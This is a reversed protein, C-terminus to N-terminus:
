TAHTAAPRTFWVILGGVIAFAIWFMTTSFILDSWINGRVLSYGSAFAAWLALCDLQYPWFGRLSRRHTLVLGIFALGIFSYLGVLAMTEQAGTTKYKSFLAGVVFATVLVFASRFLSFSEGRVAAQRPAAEAPSAKPPSRHELHHKLWVSALATALAFIGSILSTVIATEMSTTAGTHSPSKGGQNLLAGSGYAWRNKQARLRQV